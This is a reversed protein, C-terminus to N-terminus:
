FYELFSPFFVFINRTEEEIAKECANDKIDEMFVALCEDKKRAREYYTQCVAGTTTAM